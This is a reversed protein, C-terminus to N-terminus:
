RFGWLRSFLSIAIYLLIILSVAGAQLTGVLLGALALFTFRVQNGRWSYTKFKLAFLEVPAVLMACVGATIVALTINNFIWGHIPEPVYPLGTVFLAGAPTPMGIFSQTQREDINFKALRLASFAAIAFGFWSHVIGEQDGIMRVMAFAPLVGFSVVDALSDLEKGIPSSVKLARAAFGDLFDFVVAIWVFYAALAADGMVFTWIGICGTLLNGCTLANPLHRLLKM